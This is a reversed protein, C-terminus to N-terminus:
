GDPHRHLLIAVLDDRGTTRRRRAQLAREDVGACSRPSAYYKAFQADDAPEDRNWLDKQRTPIVVENILPNGLRSVQM